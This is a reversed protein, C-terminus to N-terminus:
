LMEKIEEFLEHRGNVDNLTEVLLDLAEKPEVNEGNPMSNLFEISSIKKNKDM